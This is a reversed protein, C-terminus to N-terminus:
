CQRSSARKRVTVYSEFSSVFTGHPPLSESSTPLLFLKTLPSRQQEQRTIDRPARRPSSTTIHHRLDRVRFADWHEDDWGPTVKATVAPRPDAHKFHRRHRCTPISTDQETSGSSRPSHATHNM